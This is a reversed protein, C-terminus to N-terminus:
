DAEERWSAKGSKTVGPNAQQVVEIAGTSTQIFAKSGQERGVHINPTVTLGKGLSIQRSVEQKGDLVESGLGIISEAFATGTKFYLAYLDSTGEFACPDTDPTYTTFTLIEGLLTAQGLNREGSGAFDLKWGDKTDVINEIDYFDDKGNGNTDTINACDIQSGGGDLCKVAGGEFVLIDSVDLLDNESIKAWTFDGNNDLPEKIGLYYQQDVYTIDDRILFRGTGFYVWIRGDRDRAVTPAGTIPKKADYLVTNGGSGDWNNPNTDNNIILRLDLDVSALDGVFANNDLSAFATPAAGSQDKLTPTGDALEKLDITYIKAVEDSTAGPLETPGSGLVLYWDNANVTDTPDMVIVAPYSTTFGLDDFTIEALLTPPSEPDTIDLIVYASSMEVDSNSDYYGDHDKDTKIPGGGLRMGVVMLTAWGHPHTDTAPLAPNYIRADFVKPKLDAYYVHSYTPDTLWYLHPLLNKPVYAWLETGIGPASGPDSYGSGDHLKWFKNLSGDFFGGNFAHIMGDNGGVYVVHRRHRYKAYYAAYTTDRYILDYDEAPAAVVTPTSHVIDGLRWTEVTNDCDYDVQRSRM